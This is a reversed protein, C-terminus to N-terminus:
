RRTFLKALVDLITGLVLGIVFLGLVVLYNYQFGYQHSAYLLYSSGVLAILGGLLLGLPRFLTRSLLGSVKDLLPTHILKSQAKDTASLSARIRALGQKYSIRRLEKPKLHPHETTPQSM